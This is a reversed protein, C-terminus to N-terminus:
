VDSLLSMPVSVSVSVAGRFKVSSGTEGAGFVPITYKLTWEMVRSDCVFTPAGWKGQEYDPVKFTWTKMQTLTKANPIIKMWPEANITRLGSVATKWVNQEDSFVSETMNTMSSSKVVHDNPHKDSPSIKKTVYVSVIDKTSLMIYADSAVIQIDGLVNAAVEAFLQDKNLSQQPKLQSDKGPNFQTQLFSSLFHALRVAVRGQPKFHKLLQENYPLVLDSPSRSRCNDATINLVRLKQLFDKDTLVSQERKGIIVEDIKECDFGHVLDLATGQEMDVGKFPETQTDNKYRYGPRCVCEYGGHNLGFGSLPQCETTGKCFDISAFYNPTPNGLSPRCPNIDFKTFDIEVTSEAVYLSRQLHHWPTYRPLYETIPSTVSVVWKNTRGCDFYPNTLRVPMTKNDSDLISSPGYFIFTSVNGDDGIISIGYVDKPMLDAKLDPLWPNYWIDATSGSAPRTYNRISDDEVRIGGQMRNAYAGLLPLTLNFPLTRYFNPYSTNKDYYIGSGVIADPGSTVDSLASLYTYVLDPQKAFDSSKNLKQYIISFFFGRNLTMKYAEMALSRNAFMERAGDEYVPIHTVVSHPLQLDTSSKHHCNTEDVADMLQKIDDLHDGYALSLAVLLVLAKM